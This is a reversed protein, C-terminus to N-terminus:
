KIEPNILARYARSWRGKTRWGVLGIAVFVVGWTGFRLFPMVWFSHYQSTKRGKRTGYSVDLKALFRGKKGKNDWTVTYPKTTRPLVLSPKIPISAIRRARFDYIELNATPMLHVNGTNKFDFNFQVPGRENIFSAKPESAELGERIDGEVVMFAQVGVKTGIYATNPTVTTAAVAPQFFVTAYHGGPSADRPVAVTVTIRKQQEPYLIFAPESLSLWQSADFIAKDKPSVEELPQFSSMMGKVPIPDKTLNSVTVTFKATTGPKAIVERLAPSVGMALSTTAQGAAGAHVPWCLASIAGLVLFIALQKIPQQRQM